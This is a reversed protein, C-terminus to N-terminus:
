AEMEPFTIIISLGGSERNEARITGKMREVIQKAVALGLGSGKASNPRAPDARYFSEFLRGVKEPEVGPGDDAVTITALGGRSELTIEVHGTEPRKYKISNELLNSLVRGLQMRDLSAVAKGGSHDIFRLTMGAPVMRLQGEECCDALFGSLDVPELAFPVQDLDLKSFLFLGDVMREMDCATQYVTRLYRERKDPTDAVGDLVGSVYGKISTLPTSLDHSIGAVLEKRQREYRRQVALSDKLRLRMQEFDRCVDRFEDRGTYTMPSDLNGSSIERAARRLEDLPALIGRSLKRALIVGTFLFILVAAVGVIGVGLKMMQKLGNWGNDLSFHFLETEGVVLLVAQSGDSVTVPQRYVTGAASRYFLPTTKDTEGAIDTARRQLASADAGSTLYAPVPAAFDTVLVEAGAEELADCLTAFAEADATNKSHHGNHAIKDSLSDFTLQLQYTSVPKGSNALFSARGMTGTAAFFGIVIGACLLVVLTVPVLIMLANSLILKKRISLNRLKM